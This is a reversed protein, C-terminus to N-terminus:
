FEWNTRRRRVGLNTTECKEGKLFTQFLDSSDKQLRLSCSLQRDATVCRVSCGRTYGDTNEILRSSFCFVFGRQQSVKMCLHNANHKGRGINANLREVTPWRKPDRPPAFTIEHRPLLFMLRDSIGWPSPVPYQITVSPSPSTVPSYYSQLFWLSSHESSGATVCVTGKRKDVSPYIVNKQVTEIGCINM